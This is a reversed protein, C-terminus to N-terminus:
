TGSPAVANPPRLDMLRLATELEPACGDITRGIREEIARLRVGVTNRSVGLAAAASSANRSAAFYAVLTERLVTGGDREEELPALYIDRLSRALVNDRLATSLLAVDAYRVFRQPGRIAVPLAALAQQHTLRWGALGRAQEGIALAVEANASSTALELVREIEARRRGGFWAWVSEGCRVLLLRRDLMSALQRLLVTAGPGTGVAALHWGDLEYGLEPADLLEGALLRKVREAQVHEVSQQEGDLEEAYAGTVAVILRDFLTAQSRGLLAISELPLAPDERAEQMIFETLLTYGALYRRLVTDLSVGGRAARAAQALLRPPPPHVSEEFGPLATFGHVVAEAVAERLSAVYEPDGSVRPDSVAYIRALITEEIEKQRHQLRLLLSGCDLEPSGQTRSANHIM